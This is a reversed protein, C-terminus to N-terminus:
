PQWSHQFAQSMMLRAMLCNSLLVVETCIPRLISIVSGGIRIQSRSPFRRSVIDAGIVLDFSKEEKRLDAASGVLSYGWILLSSQINESESMSNLGLNTEIDSVVSHSGDTALVYSAGLHRACLISVLGTGAGLELINKGALNVQEARVSLYTALHLAAEWTRFGTTGTSALLSPSEFVTLTPSPDRTSPATYTVYCKQQATSAETPLPQAM